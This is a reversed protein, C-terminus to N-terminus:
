RLDVLEKFGGDNGLEPLENVNDKFYLVQPLKPKYVFM